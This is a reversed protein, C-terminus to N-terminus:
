PEPLILRADYLAFALSRGGREPSETVAPDPTSFELRGHGATLRATVTLKMKQPGVPGRWLEGHEDRITVTRQALSRIFFEVQVPQDSQGWRTFEL